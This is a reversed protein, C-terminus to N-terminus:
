YCRPFLVFQKYFDNEGDVKQHCIGVNSRLRSNYYKEITYILPVLTRNATVASRFLTKMFPATQMFMPKSRVLGRNM